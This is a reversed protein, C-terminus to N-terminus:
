LIKHMLRLLFAPFLSFKILFILFMIEYSRDLKSIISTISIFSFRHLLLFWILFICEKWSSLAKWADYTVFCKWHKRERERERARYVWNKKKERKKLFRIKTVISALSAFSLFVDFNFSFTKSAMCIHACSFKFLYFIQMKIFEKEGSLIDLFLSIRKGVFHFSINDEDVVLM